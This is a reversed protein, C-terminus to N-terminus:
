PMTLLFFYNIKLFYIKDSSDCLNTVSFKSTSTGTTAWHNIFRVLFWSTTLEVGARSLPNLIRHQRSSHHLECVHSPDWTATATARTLSRAQSGGCVESAARSFVFLCLFFFFIWKHCVQLQKLCSIPHALLAPNIRM